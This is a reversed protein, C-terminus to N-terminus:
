SSSCGERRVCCELKAAKRRSRRMDLRKIRKADAHSGASSEAGVTVAVVLHLKVQNRGVGQNLFGGGRSCRAEAEAKETVPTKPIATIMFYRRAHVSRNRDQGIM